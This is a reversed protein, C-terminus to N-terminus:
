QGIRRVRMGSAETFLINGSADATLGFPANIHAAAAPQNDGNFVPSGTGIITSIEGTQVNVFRVRHNFSDAILVNGIVDVAVGFPFSLQALTADQNDGNFGPIGTGAVTTITGTLADVRRVRQNLSDAIFVNGSVDIAVGIPMNLNAAVAQINDGNFGATGTGAVTTVLGTQLDVRRVRHNLTDAVLLTGTSEVAVGAPGNLQTTMIPGDNNFGGVGTGALTSVLTTQTDARRLRQNGSDVLVWNGSADVALGIPANLNTNMATLDGNFSQVGTGAVTTILGTQMDVYRIRHNMQDAILVNGLGDVAVGAPTDLTAATAVGNDGSFGAVGSGAIPRVMATNVQLILARTGSQGNSDQVRLMFSFIGTSTPVGRLTADPTGNVLTVGPPLAGASVTWVYGAGSGGTGQVKQSYGLASLGTALTSTTIQPAPAVQSTLTGSGGNDGCATTSVLLAM